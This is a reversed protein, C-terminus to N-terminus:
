WTKSKELLYITVQRHNYRLEEKRGSVALDIRLGKIASGTDSSYSYGYGPIFLRWGLPIVSPDVAVLGRQLKHGLYTTDSPVMPDGVYYGTALMSFKRLDNLNYHQVPKDKEDLLTLRYLPKRVLKTLTIQRSVEKGDHLVKQITQHRQNTFGKQIRVRRLNQRTKNQWTISDPIDIIIKDERSTVRTVKVQLKSSLPTDLAPVVFDDPGLILNNEVLLERVSTGKSHVRHTQGDTTLYVLPYRNIWRSGWWSGAAIALALLLIGTRHRSSHHLKPYAM